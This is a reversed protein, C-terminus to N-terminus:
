HHRTHQMTTTDVRLAFILSFVVRLTAEDTSIEALARSLIDAARDHVVKKAMDIAQYRATDYHDGSGDLRRIIGAYEHISDALLAADFRAALKVFGEEDLVEVLFSDKTPTALLYRDSLGEEFTGHEVLEGLLVKWEMQRAASGSKWTSDDLRFDAIRAM